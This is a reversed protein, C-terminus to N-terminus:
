WSFFSKEAKLKAHFDQLQKNGVEKLQPNQEAFDNIAEYLLRDCIGSAIKVRDENEMELDVCTHVLREVGMYLNLVQRFIQDCKESSPYKKTFSKVDACLESTLEKLKEAEPTFRFSAQDYPLLQLIGRQGPTKFHPTLETSLSSCKREIDHALSHESAFRTSFSM